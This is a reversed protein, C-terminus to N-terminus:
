RLKAGLQSEFNKQLKAMVAEIQKDNLTKDPDQLIFSVAYSKCGEAIGKGVYVDFLSVRKLLKKETARAVAEIQSFTVKNDLVLALDRRVEPFKSIESYTVDKSPLSKLLLDWNIDAYFVEQKCDMSQLVKRSVRGVEALLKKSDLFTYSLGEDLFHRSTESVELRGM